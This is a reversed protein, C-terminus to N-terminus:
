PLEDIGELAAQLKQRASHLRSMVTGIPIGQAEAIEKYSLGAEAFLVFSERIAPSLRALAEDIARRLDDLQLNRGPDHEVSPAIASPGPGGPNDPDLDLDALRLAPRRGKRRGLDHAANTVIRLLWTRFASRGDFADLHRFAKIFGDQVADMADEANGLLRFAVRYAVDRGRRFLEERAEPDGGRALEVLAEDPAEVVGSRPDTM